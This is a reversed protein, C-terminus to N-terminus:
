AHEGSGRDPSQRAASGIYHVACHYLDEFGAERLDPGIQQLSRFGLERYSEFQSESFWQDATSQHPFDGNRRAYSYVDYPLKEEGRGRLTPKIYILKGDQEPATGDV